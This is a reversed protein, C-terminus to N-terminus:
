QPKFMAGLTEFLPTEVFYPSNINESIVAEIEKFGLLKYACVRHRGDKIKYGGLNSKELKIPPIEGGQYIFLALDFTKKNVPLNDIMISEILIKM